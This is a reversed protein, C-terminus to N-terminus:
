SILRPGRPYSDVFRIGKLHPYKSIDIDIPRLKNCVKNITLAEVEIPVTKQSDSNQAQLSFRVRKMKKTETTNGGLTTVSLVETPGSLGVSEAIQKRIFTRESGLDLLVRVPIEQSNGCMMTATVTQLLSQTSISNSESIFGSHTTESSQSQTGHSERVPNSHLLRHHKRGCGEATCSPQRCNGSNHFNNTPKLCNFCLKREKAIKWRDDCPKDRVNVCHSTEHDRKNCFACVVENARKVGAILASASSVNQRNRKDSSPRNKDRRKFGHAQYSSSQASSFNSAHENFSREGAEKSVVQKNLFKFFRDITVAKEDVDEIDLEWKEALYQPLKMQLLPILIMQVNTNDEPQFGLAELARIRNLLTDHLDRLSASNLKEKLEIKIISKVLSSVIIRKRGYRHLIAKIAHDYNAATVEFGDITKLATGKLTSRLYTFKQVSSLESNEHVACRFQDWYSSFRLVDGYFSPLELKPLKMGSHPRESSQSEGSGSNNVSNGNALSVATNDAIYRQAKDSVKRIQKFYDSFQHCESEVLDDPLLDLIENYLDSYKEKLHNLEQLRSVVEAQKDEVACLDTLDELLSKMSIKLSKERRRKRNIELQLDSNMNAANESDSIESVAELRDIHDKLRAVLTDKKGKKNLNRKGLQEKLQSMSLESLDTRLEAM